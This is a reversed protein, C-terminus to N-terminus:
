VGAASTWWWHCGGAVAVSYWIGYVGALRGLVERALALQGSSDAEGSVHLVGGDARVSLRPGSLRQDCACTDAVAVELDRDLLRRRGLGTPATM